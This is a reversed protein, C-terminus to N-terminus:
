IPPQQRRSPQPAENKPKPKDNRGQGNQPQEKKPPLAQTQAKKQADGTEGPASAAGAAEKQRGAVDELEKKMGIIEAKLYNNEERLLKVEEKLRNNEKECTNCSVLLLLLPLCLIVLRKM